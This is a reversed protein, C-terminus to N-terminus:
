FQLGLALITMPINPLIVDVLAHPQLNKVTPRQRIGLLWEEGM